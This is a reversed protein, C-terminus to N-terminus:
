SSRALAIASLEIINLLARISPGAAAPNSIAHSPMPVQKKRFPTLKRATMQLRVWISIGARTIAPTPARM